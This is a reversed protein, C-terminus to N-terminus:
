ECSGGLALYLRIVSQIHILRVASQQLQAGLLAQRATLVELYNTNGHKMLLSTTEYARQLSAVQASVVESKKRSTQCAVLAENVEAGANLVTQQFALSAEEYQAKAIKYGAKLKGQAFLPQTLQGVAAAVLKGPNVIMTGASNTWGASGSLTINPWFASRAANVGYFAAELGREAARVDPRRALLQVPVGASLSDPFVFSEEAWSKRSVAHPPEALLLALSNEAQNIQEKLDLVSSQVGYRAAEMQAVAAESSMGAEMLARMAEVTEGWSHETHEAIDLQEDLMRLTYYLNAIGFIVGTQVAQRYDESQEYIAEAQRKSNRISGFLDLQWNAVVPLQYIQTAKMRDFSSATGQPALAFSPLYALRATLLAAEAEEVRLQATRLDANQQLGREILEQLTPDSFIERWKLDALSTSDDTAVEEGYLSEPVEKAPKYRTYIGCSSLILSLFICRIGWNRGERCLLSFPTGYMMHYINKSM